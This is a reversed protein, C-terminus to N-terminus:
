FNGSPRSRDRAARGNGARSPVCRLRRCSSVQASRDWAGTRPPKAKTHPHSEAGDLRPVTGYPPPASELRHSGGLRRYRRFTGPVASFCPRPMWPSICHAFTVDPQILCDHLSGSQSLGRRVAIGLDSAWDVCNQHEGPQATPREPCLNKCILQTRSRHEPNKGIPASANARSHDGM